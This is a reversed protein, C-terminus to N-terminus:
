GQQKGEKQITQIVSSQLPQKASLNSRYELKGKQEQDFIQNAPTFRRQRCKKKIM